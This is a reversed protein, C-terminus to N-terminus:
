ANAILRETARTYAGAVMIGEEQYLKYWEAYHEDCLDAPGARYLDTGRVERSDGCIRCKKAATEKTQTRRAGASVAGVAAKHSNQARGM